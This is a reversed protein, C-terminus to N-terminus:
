GSRTWGARTRDKGMMSRGRGGVWLLAGGMGVSSQSQILGTELGVANRYFTVSRELNRINIHTEFLRQVPTVRRLDPSCSRNEPFGKWESWSVVGVDPRPPEPLMCIYELVNGDPDDFFVSAAPM